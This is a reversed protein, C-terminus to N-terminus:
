TDVVNINFMIFSILSEVVNPNHILVKFIFIICQMFYLSICNHYILDTIVSVFTVILILILLICSFRYIQYHHDHLPIDLKKEKKHINKEVTFKSSSCTDKRSKEARLNKMILPDNRQKSRDEHFNEDDSDFVCPVHQIYFWVEFLSNSNTQDCIEFVKNFL